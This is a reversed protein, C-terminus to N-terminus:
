ITKPKLLMLCGLGGLSPLDARSRFPVSVVLLGCTGTLSGPSSRRSRKWINGPSM